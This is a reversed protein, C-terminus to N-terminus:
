HLLARRVAAVVSDADRRQATAAVRVDLQEAHASTTPGIAVVLSGALLETGGDAARVADIGSPSTAVIVRAERLAHLTEADLELLVTDYAVVVAVDIGRSSLADVLERRAGRAALFLVPGQEICTALGAATGDPATAACRVGAREVVSATSAGVAGVQVQPPWSASWLALRRAASSSTVVVWRFRALVGVDDRLEADPRDVVEGVRVTTATAGLVRLAAGFRDEGDGVRLVAVRVGDLPAASV